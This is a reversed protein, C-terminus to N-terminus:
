KRTARAFPAVTLFRPARLGRSVCAGTVATRIPGLDEARLLLLVPRGPGDWIMRGGLAGAALAAAVVTNQAKGPVGSDGLRAHAANLAAGLAAPDGDRLYEAVDLLPAREAVPSAIEGRIRTDVVVLRLGAGEVDLPVFDPGDDLLAAHSRGLLTARCRGTEREGTVGFARLGRDVLAPLAATPLDPAYMDRLALAVACATATPAALGVGEPLDVGALLTTGGLAYGAERLAWVASLGAAAWEEADGPGLLGPDVQVRDAPRNMLTLEIVDHAHAHTAVITGWRAAMSLSTDGDSLLTVSGPARWVGTAEYGYTEHFAAPVLRLEPALDLRGAIDAGRTATEAM